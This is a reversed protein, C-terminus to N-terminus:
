PNMADLLLEQGIQQALRPNDEELLVLAVLPPQRNRHHETLVLHYSVRREGAGIHTWNSEMVHCRADDAAVASAGLPSERCASWGAM